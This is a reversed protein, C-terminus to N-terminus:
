KINLAENKDSSSLTTLTTNDINSNKISSYISSIDEGSETKWANRFMESIVLERNKRKQAITENADWPQAFYQLRANEFEQPSIVAGSEQRLKANIFDRQAQEYKQQDASKLWNPTYEWRPTLYESAGSSESFRKDAEQLIKDSSDMRSGYGFSKAKFESTKEPLVIDTIDRYKTEPWKMLDTQIFGKINKYRKDSPSITSRTVKWPEAYNAEVVDISGDNYVKEVIGIHGTPVWNIAGTNWIDEVFAAWPTAPLDKNIMSEKEALTDWVWIGAVDNVFQWCQYWWAYKTKRDEPWAYGADVNVTIWGNNATTEYRINPRNPTVNGTWQAWPATIFKWDQYILEWPKIWSIIKSEKQSLAISQAKSFEKSMQESTMGTPDVGLQLLGVKLNYEEQRKLDDLKENRDRGHQYEELAIQKKLDIDKQAIDEQRIQDANITNYLQFAINRNDTREQQKLTFMEKNQDFIRSMDAQANAQLQSLYQWQEILPRAERAIASAILSEPTWASYKKRVAENLAQINKNNDAIQQNIGNFKQVSAQYEPNNTVTNQYESALDTDMSKTFYNVLSNLAKNEKPPTVEGVIAEWLTKITNLNDEQTKVANYEQLLNPNKTTLDTFEKSWPIMSGGKVANFLDKGTSYVATNSALTNNANTQLRLKKQDLYNQYNESQIQEPTKVPQTTTAEVKQTPTVNTAQTNQTTQDPTVQGGDPMSTPTPPTVPTATYNIAIWADWVQKLAQNVNEQWYQAVAADANQKNTNLWQGSAKREAIKQQITKYQDLATPM